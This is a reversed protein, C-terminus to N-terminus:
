ASVTATLERPTFLFDHAAQLGLRVGNMRSNVPLLQTELPSYGYVAVQVVTQMTESGLLRTIEKCARFYEHWADRQIDSMERKKGGGVRECIVMSSPAYIGATYALSELREGAILQDFSLHRAKFLRQIPPGKRSFISFGGRSGLKVESRVHQEPPLTHSLIAQIELTAMVGVGYQNNIRVPCPSLHM